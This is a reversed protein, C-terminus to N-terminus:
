LLPTQNRWSPYAIGLQIVPDALPPNEQLRLEQKGRKAASHLVPLGYRSLLLGGACRDIVFFLADLMEGVSLFARNRKGIFSFLPAICDHIM